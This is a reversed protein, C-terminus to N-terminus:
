KYKQELEDVQSGLGGFMEAAMQVSKAADGLEKLHLEVAAKAALDRGVHIRHLVADHAKACADNKCRGKMRVVETKLSDFSHAAQEAQRRLTQADPQAYGTTSLVIALVSILIRM